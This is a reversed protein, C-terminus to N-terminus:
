KKVEQQSINIAPSASSISEEKKPDNVTIVDESSVVLYEGFKDIISEADNRQDNLNTDRIPVLLCLRAKPLYFEDRSVWKAPRYRISMDENNWEPHLTSVSAIEAKTIDNWITKGEPTSLKEYLQVHVTYWLDPSGIEYVAFHKENEKIDLYESTTEEEKEIQNAKSIIRHLTGAPHQTQVKYPDFLEVNLKKNFDGEKLYNNVYKKDDFRSPGYDFGTRKENFGHRNNEKKNSSDHKRGKNFIDRVERDQVYLRHRKHPSVYEKNFYELESM